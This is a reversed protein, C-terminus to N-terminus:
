PMRRSTESDGLEMLETIREAYATLQGSLTAPDDPVPHAMASSWARFHTNDYHDYFYGGKVALLCPSAYAEKMYPYANLLMAQGTRLGFSTPTGKYLRIAHRDIGWDHILIRLSALIEHGIETFRRNEQRARLDAIIPHTLLFHVKVKAEHKSRLVARADEYERDPEQLLGLLSSGVVMIHDNEARMYNVFAGVADRRSQYFGRIGAQRASGLLYIEHRYERAFEHVHDELKEERKLHTHFAEALAGEMIAVAREKFAAAPRELEAKIDEILYRRYLFSLIGPASIAVGLGLCLEPVWRENMVYRAYAGAGIFALGLASILLFVFRQPANGRRVGPLPPDDLPESIAAM